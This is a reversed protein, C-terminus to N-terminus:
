SSTTPRNQDYVKHDRLIKNEQTLIRIKEQLESIEGEYKKSNAFHLNIVNIIEGEHEVRKDYKDKLDKIKLGSTDLFVKM